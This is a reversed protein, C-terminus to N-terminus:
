ADKYDEETELHLWMSYDGTEAKAVALREEAFSRDGCVLKYLCESERGCVNAKHMIYYRNM